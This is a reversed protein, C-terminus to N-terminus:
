PVFTVLPRSHALSFLSGRLDVDFIDDVFMPGAKVLVPEYDKLM